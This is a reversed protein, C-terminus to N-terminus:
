ELRSETAKHCRRMARPPIRRRTADSSILLRLIRQHSPNGQVKPVCHVFPQMTVNTDSSSRLPLDHQWDHDEGAGRRRHGQSRRAARAECEPETSRTM